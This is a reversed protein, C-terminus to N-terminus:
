MGFLKRIVALKWDKYPYYKLPPEFWTPRRIFSKYHSFAKFGAEGHYSGTGSNGVGGFPLEDNALHVLVDNVAGGGFSVESFIRERISSSETFLYLALPKPRSKVFSVAGEVNEYTLVPLIPGFIEDEMVKDDGAINTLVTPAILRRSRDHEGGVLVTKPDILSVLRDFHRESIIQAYNENELSFQALKIEEKLIDLFSNEIRKDVLVYDPAVCTQGANVFKGWVLRKVVITLNADAAIILPSKGGLELTVPTLHKAAAQYVIRGVSVSGTFFIKDFSQELLETTEKVGGEVVTLVRPDFYKAIMKSLAASTHAALESPKLIVTNGAALAAITPVLNLNIPYNWAGIILCTGLPEPMIYSAGPLNAMHTTVRKSKSWSKLKRIALDLENYVGSFETVLTNFSGKQFDAFVADLLERESSKIASKLKKLQEIRFDLSKTANSNFFQKQNSILTKVSNKIVDGANSEEDVQREISAMKISKHDM